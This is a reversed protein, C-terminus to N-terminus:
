ACLCKVKSLNGLTYCLIAIYNHIIQFSIIISQKLPIDWHEDEPVLFVETLFAIRWDLSGYHFRGFM